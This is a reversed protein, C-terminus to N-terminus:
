LAFAPLIGLIGRMEAGKLEFARKWLAGEFSFDEEKRTV